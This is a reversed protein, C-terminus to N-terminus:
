RAAVYGLLAGAGLIVIDPPKPIFGFWKKGRNRLAEGERLSVEVLDARKEAQDARLADAQALTRLAALQQVQTAVLDQLRADRRQSQRLLLMRGALFRVGASDTVFQPGDGPPTPLRTLRLPSLLSDVATEAVSDAEVQDLADLRRLASRTARAQVALATEVRVMSDSITRLSDLSGRYADGSALIVQVNQQHVAERDSIGADWRGIMYIVLVGVGILVAVRISPWMM